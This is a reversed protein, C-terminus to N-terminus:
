DCSLQDRVAFSDGGSVARGWTVISGDGLNASFACNGAQIQQVNKLQDRVDSSDGGFEESGWTM